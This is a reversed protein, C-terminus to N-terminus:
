SEWGATAESYGLPVLVRLAEPLVEATWSIDGGSLTGCPDGDLQVPVPHKSLITVRSVRRHDIDPQNLHLRLGVMILYLFARFPGPRHFVVLDLM